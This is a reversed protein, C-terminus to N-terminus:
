NYLLKTTQAERWINCPNDFCPPAPYALRTAHMINFDSCYGVKRGLSKTGQPLHCATRALERGGRDGSGSAAPNTAMRGSGRPASPRRRLGTVANTWLTVLAQRRSHHRSSSPQSGCVTSPYSSCTSHPSTASYIDDAECMNRGGTTVM